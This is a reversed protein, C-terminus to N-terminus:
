FLVPIQPSPPLDETSDDNWKEYYVGANAPATTHLLSWKEKLRVTIRGHIIRRCSSARARVAHSIVVARDVYWALFKKRKLSRLLVQDRIM